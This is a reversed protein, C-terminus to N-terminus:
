AAYQEEAEAIVRERFLHSLDDPTRLDVKRGLLASLEEEMEMLRFFGPTQGVAFDVLVDVDSDARFDARLVSGYLALHRIHHRRCFDAIRAKDITIRASM